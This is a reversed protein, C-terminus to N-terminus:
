KNPEVYDVPGDFYDWVESGVGGFRKLVGYVNQTAGQEALARIAYFPDAQAPERGPAPPRGARELQMLYANLWKPGSVSIDGPVAPFLQKFM